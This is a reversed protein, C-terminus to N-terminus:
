LQQLLLNTIEICRAKVSNYDSGDSIKFGSAYPHGGGGLQLALDAAIPAANNTRIAGTIKGDDYRKIVISVLVGDIQLTDPQILPAPNYLPSYINIEDQGLSVIALRKDLSLETRTILTAKYRFISEPMKGAARRAEELATRDVGLDHLDAMVRSTSPQTLNNSLGQTDGLISVMLAAGSVTDVPWDLKTAIHFILEGASAVKTDQIVVEAFEIGDQVAAHHDLVLCPKHQLKAIQHTDRLRELLTMTSADVIISADFNNPLTDTVRDWGAVYRLYTPMDVGCYLSVEKGLEGLIQELALASGLSDADPNDAQIIVIHHATEVVSRITQLETETM